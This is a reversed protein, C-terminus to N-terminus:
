FCAEREAVKHEGLEWPLLREGYICCHYRQITLKDNPWSCQTNNIGSFCWPYSLTVTGPPTISGSKGYPFIAATVCDPCFLGNHFGPSNRSHKWYYFNISSLLLGNYCSWQCCLGKLIINPKCYHIIITFLCSRLSSIILRLFHSEWMNLLYSKIQLHM